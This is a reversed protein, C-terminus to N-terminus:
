FRYSVMCIRLSLPGFKLIQVSKVLYALKVLRLYAKFITLKEDLTIGLDQVPFNNKV